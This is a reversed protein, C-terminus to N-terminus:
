IHIIKKFIFAVVLLALAGGIGTILLSFYPISNFASLVDDTLVEVEPLELGLEAITSGASAFFGKVYNFIWVLPKFAILFMDSLNSLFWEAIYFLDYIHHVLDEFLGGIAGAVANGVQQFWIISYDGVEQIAEWFEALYGWM